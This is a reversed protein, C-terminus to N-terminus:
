ILLLGWYVMPYFGHILPYLLNNVNGSLGLGKPKTHPTQWKPCLRDKFSWCVFQHVHALDLHLIIIFSSLTFLAFGQPTGQASYTIMM